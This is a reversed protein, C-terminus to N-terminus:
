GSLGHKDGKRKLSISIKREQNFRWLKNYVDKYARNLRRALHDIKFIQAHNLLYLVEEDSWRGNKLPRNNEEEAPDEIIPKGLLLNSCNM